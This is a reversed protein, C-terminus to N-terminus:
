KQALSAKIGANKLKGLASDAAKKSKFPGITLNQSPIAIDARKVTVSFGVDKLREKESSAADSQLYSGAYLAFKGGQEMVFADSTHRQLKELASQAATRESFESVFLRNMASKKRISPKVVPQFGAKRVRGMDASLAEELVYNGVVLSWASSVAHKVKVPEPADNKSPSGTVQKKEGNKQAAAKEPKTEAGAIPVPKKEPPKAAAGKQTVEKATALPPTPATAVPPAAMKAPAVSPKAVPTEITAPTPTSKAADGKKPTKGVAKEADVERPPLAIKVVQPTAAPVEVSKAAEQPKILATFFYLYTFGGVLILLLVLLANQSKKEGPKEEPKSTDANKSFKFDMAM